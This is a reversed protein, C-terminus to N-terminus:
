LFDADEFIDQNMPEADQDFSFGMGPHLRERFCPIHAWFVQEGSGPTAQYQELTVQMLEESKLPIAEGCFCCVYEDRKSM